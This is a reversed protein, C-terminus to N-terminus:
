QLKESLKLNLNLLNTAPKCQLGINCNKLILFLFETKLVHSVIVLVTNGNVFCCICAGFSQLINEIFERLVILLTEYQHRFLCNQLLFERLVAFLCGDKEVCYM